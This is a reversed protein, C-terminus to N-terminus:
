QLVYAGGPKKQKAYVRSTNVDLLGGNSLHDVFEKGTVIHHKNLLILTNSDKLATRLLDNAKKQNEAFRAQKEKKKRERRQGWHMGKIGVHRLYADERIIM